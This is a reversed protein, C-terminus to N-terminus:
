HSALYRDYHRQQKMMKMIRLEGRKILLSLTGVIFAQGSGLILVTGLLAWGTYIIGRTLWQSLVWALIAIGPLIALAAVFSFLFVPNYIRALNLITYMIQSGHKWTSLKARGLRTRYNIPVETIEGRMSMQAIIEVEAAFGGTHLHLDKAADTRLMYMGSCVDSTTTDFMTNFLKTIANNGIRHLHSINERSRAGIIQEYNEAHELFREISAADYTFDGDMLLMYPTSVFDIATKIAGTKGRGHQSIVDVGMSEAVRVTQDTSYGDVVLIHNYGNARLEDIVPGIGAEENLVPLVITVNEKAAPQPQLDLFSRDPKSGSSQNEASNLL